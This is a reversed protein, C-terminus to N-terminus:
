EGEADVATKALPHHLRLSGIRLIIQEVGCGVQLGVAVVAQVECVVAIVRRVGAGVLEGHEVHM